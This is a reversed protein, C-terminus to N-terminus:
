INVVVVVVVVSIQGLISSGGTHRWWGTTGPAQECQRHSACSRVNPRSVGVKFVCLQRLNEIVVHKGEYGKELDDEPDAACYRGDAICQKRCELLLM